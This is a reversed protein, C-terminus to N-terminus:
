WQAMEEKLNDYVAQIKRMVQVSEMPNYLGHRKLFEICEKQREITALCVDCYKEEISADEPLKPISKGCGLCKEQDEYAM